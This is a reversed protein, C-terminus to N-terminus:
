YQQIWPKIFQSCLLSHSEHLADRRKVKFSPKYLPELLVLFMLDETSYIFICEQKFKFGCFDYLAKLSTM